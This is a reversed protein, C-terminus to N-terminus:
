TLKSGFANKSLSVFLWSDINDGSPHGNQIWDKIFPLSDILPLTRSGTKGGRIEIEAYQKGEETVKFFIDKIKLNLLEHPRASTDLAMSHYCRDRKSPCYKLFLIHERTEWLDSANYKIKDKRNIRKIGKMCDPVLRKKHDPEDQNYFWKFFTYFILQRINYSGIWSQKPDEQLPKRLSNLYSLVDVKTMDGFFKGSHFNSLWILVKIKGEKTSEKINFETENNTIYDCILKANELNELAVKRLAMKIYPRQLKTLSEIRQQIINNSEISNNEIKRQSNSDVDSSFIQM